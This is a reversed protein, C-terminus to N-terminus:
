GPRKGSPKASGGVAALVPVEAAAGASCSPSRPSAPTRQGLLTGSRQPDVASAASRSCAGTRRLALLRRLAPRPDARAAIRRRRASPACGGASSRRLRSRRPKLPTPRGRRGVNQTRIRVVATPPADHPPRAEHDPTAAPFWLLGFCTVEHIPNLGRARTREETACPLERPRGPQLRDLFRRDLQTGAPQYAGGRRSPFTPSPSGSPSWGARLARAPRRDAPLHRHAQPKKVSKGLESEDFAIISLDRPIAVGREDLYELVGATVTNPVCCLIASAGAALM